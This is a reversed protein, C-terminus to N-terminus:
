LITFLVVAVIVAVSVLEFESVLAAGDIGYVTVAPRLAARVFEVGADTSTPPLKPYVICNVHPCPVPLTPVDAIWIEDVRGAM